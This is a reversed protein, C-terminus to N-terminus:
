SQSGISGQGWAGTLTRIYIDATQLLRHRSTPSLVSLLSEDLVERFRWLVPSMERGNRLTALVALLIFDMQKPLARGALSTIVQSAVAIARDESCDPGELTRLMARTGETTGYANTELRRVIDEASVRVFWYNLLALREIWQSYAEETIADQERLDELVSQTNVAGVGVSRAVLLGM